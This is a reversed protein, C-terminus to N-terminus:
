RPPRRAARARRRRGRASSGAGRRRRAEDSSAAARSRRCGGTHAILRDAVLVAHREDVGGGVQQDTATSGARHVLDGDRADRRDEHRPRARGLVVLGGVHTTTRCPPPRRSRSGSISSSAPTTSVGARDGPRAPPARRRRTLSPCTWRLPAKARAPRIPREAPHSPMGTLPAADGRDACTRGYGPRTTIAADVGSRAAGAREAALTGIAGSSRDCGRRSCTIPTPPGPM